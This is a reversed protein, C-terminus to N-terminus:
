GAFTSMHARVQAVYRRTDSYLGHQRVGGAGQYYAAIAYDMNGPFQRKLERIIAVGAVINDYPDLLNIERGVLNSAWEGSSPIVQMTGIANAPSVSAPNFGSEQFAHAQALRPDVGMERAVQVVTRQTEARSPLDMALLAAKNVNAAAVTSGPYARGLFTSPVLQEGGGSPAADAGPITLRQGVRIRA